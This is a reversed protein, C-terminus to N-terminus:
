LIKDLYGQLILTAAVADYRVGKETKKRVMQVMRKASVTTLREDWFEIPVATHRCLVAEFAKVKDVQKGQSGDMSLPLGVIIRGVEHRRVLAVVAEVDEQEERREIITLPSALVEGPDSLAVGIRRDGVDLGLIRM